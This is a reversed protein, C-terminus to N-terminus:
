KVINLFWGFENFIKCALFICTIAIMSPVHFTQLQLDILGIELM